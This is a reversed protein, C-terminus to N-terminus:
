EPAALWSIAVRLVLDLDWAGLSIEFGLNSLM